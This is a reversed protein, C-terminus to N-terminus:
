TAPLLAKDVSSVQEPTKNLHDYIFYGSVDLMAIGASIYSVLNYGSLHGAIGAGVAAVGIVCAGPFVYCGYCGGSVSQIENSNLAKM